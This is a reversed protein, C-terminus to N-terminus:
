YIPYNVSENNLQEVREYDRPDLLERERIEIIRPEIPEFGGGPAETPEPM